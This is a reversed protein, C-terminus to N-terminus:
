TSFFNYQQLNSSIPYPYRLCTALQLSLSLFACFSHLYLPIPFLFLLCTALQLPLSLFACFSHLYLLIPFFLAFMNCTTSTLFSFHLLFALLSSYSFFLLCTALQLPLSLFACFSHLYLLIPFLFLLCTALYADFIGWRSNTFLGQSLRRVYYM